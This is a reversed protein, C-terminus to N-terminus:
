ARCAMQNQICLPQGVDDLRRYLGDCYPCCAFGQAVDDNTLAVAQFDDVAHNCAFTNNINNKFLGVGQQIQFRSHQCGQRMVFIDIDHGIIDTEMRAFVHDDACAFENQSGSPVVLAVPDATSRFVECACVFGDQPWIAVEIQGHGIYCGKCISKAYNFDSM